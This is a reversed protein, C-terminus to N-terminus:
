ANSMKVLKYRSFGYYIWAFFLYISGFLICLIVQLTSGTLKYTAMISMIWLGISILVIIVIFAVMGSSSDAFKNSKQTEQYASVLSAAPHIAASKLTNLLTTLSSM